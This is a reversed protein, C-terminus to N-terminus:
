FVLKRQILLEITLQIENTNVLDNHFIGLSFKYYRLNSNINDKQLSRKIEIHQMKRGVM